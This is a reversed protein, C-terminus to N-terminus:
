PFGKYNCDARIQRAGPGASFGAVRIRTWYWPPFWYSFLHGAEQLELTYCVSRSGATFAVVRQEAPHKSPACQREGLAGELLEMGPITWGKSTRYAQSLSFYKAFSHWHLSKFGPLSMNSRPWVNYPATTFDILLFLAATVLSSILSAQTFVVRLSSCAQIGPANNM